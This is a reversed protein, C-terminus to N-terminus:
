AREDELCARFRGSSRPFRSPLPRDPEPSDALDPLIKSSALWAEVAGVPVRLRGAPKYALLEGRSIARRLTWTSLRVRQAAEELTLLQEREPTQQLSM